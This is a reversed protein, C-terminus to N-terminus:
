RRETWSLRSFRDRQIQKTMEQQDLGLQDPVLKLDLQKALRRPWSPLWDQPNLKIGTLQTIGIVEPAFPCRDLLVSGHQLVIGRYRRQASGAVKDRGVLIDGPTKRQFCLFPEQGAPPAGPLSRLKADIRYQQLEEIITQHVLTYLQRSDQGPLQEVPIVLSYTVEQDHCIAGGGTARRVLPCSLSAPHQKRDAFHQFYGLSVTPENWQYLRLCPRRDLRVTELLVQDVAMNWSGPQADTVILRLNRSTGPIGTEM